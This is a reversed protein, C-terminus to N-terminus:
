RRDNTADGYIYLGITCPRHACLEGGFRRGDQDLIPTSRSVYPLRSM